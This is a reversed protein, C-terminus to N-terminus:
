TTTSARSGFGFATRVATGAGATPRSSAPTPRRPRRGRPRAAVDVTAQAAPRCADLHRRSLSVGAACRRATRRPRGVLRSRSPSAGLNTYTLPTSRRRSTASRGASLLRAQAVPGLRRTQHIAAAADVRGTGADFGTADAVPVTSDAIAAKLQEGDWAPHEQKLIAAVGAVHPTAMSTGSLTTYCTTSRTASRRHRRRPRRHHRRRARRRRAQPRRRRLRPGRSSFDAMADNGDVAGVTLAADAAGPSPSRPRAQATTAPPSSSCRTPPRPCSTSRRASRTPATAADGGLSMSVVDAGQDVAWEMGALVWSDEGYGGDALVKGIMLDAGPAVGKHKGGSAAGSGAITSAVHTGHGNGDIVRRRRRSTRRARRGPGAPRPPHPRLRHRARRRDAGTGDFGAAWAEPAHIQPM